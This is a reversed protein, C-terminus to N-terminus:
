LYFILVYMLLYMGYVFILVFIKLKEDSTESLHTHKEFDSLLEPTLIEQKLVRELIAKNSNKYIYGVTVCEHSLVASAVHNCSTQLFWDHDPLPSALVHVLHILIDNDVTIM